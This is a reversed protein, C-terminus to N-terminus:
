YSGGAGIAWYDGGDLNQWAIGFDWRGQVYGVGATPIAADSLDMLGGRLALGDDNLWEVGFDYEAMDTVDVADFGVTIGNPWVAGLGFNFQSFGGDTMNWYEAAFRLDLPNGPSLLGYTMGVTYWTGEGLGSRQGVSAGATFRSAWARAYGLGVDNWDDSGRYGVGLGNVGDASRASVDVSTWDVVDSLSTTVNKLAGWRGGPTRVDILPTLAVNNWWAGADTGVALMVEGMGLVRVTEASVPAVILAALVICGIMYQTRSM